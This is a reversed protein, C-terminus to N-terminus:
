QTQKLYGASVLIVTGSDGSYLASILASWRGEADASQWSCDFVTRINTSFLKCSKSCFLWRSSKMELTMFVARSTKRCLPTHVVWGAVSVHFSLPGEQNRSHPTLASKYSSSCVCVDAPGHHTGTSVIRQAERHALSVDQSRGCPIRGCEERRTEAKEVWTKAESNKISTTILVTM